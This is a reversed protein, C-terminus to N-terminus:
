LCNIVENYKDLAENYTNYEKHEKGGTKLVNKLKKAIVFKGQKDTLIAGMANVKVARCRFENTCYIFEEDNALEDFKDMEKSNEVLTKM